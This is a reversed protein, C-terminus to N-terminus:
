GASQLLLCCRRHEFVVRAASRHRDLCEELVVMLACLLYGSRSAWLVRYWSTRAIRHLLAILGHGRDVSGQM